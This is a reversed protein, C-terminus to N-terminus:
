LSSHHLLFMVYVCCLIGMVCVCVCVANRECLMCVCVCVVHLVCCVQVLEILELRRQLWQEPTTVATGNEFQMLPPLDATPTFAHGTSPLLAVLLLLLLQMQLLLHVPLPAM